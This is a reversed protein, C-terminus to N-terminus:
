QIFGFSGFAAGVTRPDGKPHFGPSIRFEIRVTAEPKPKLPYALKQWGTTNVKRTGATEGDLLLEIQFQHIADMQLPPANINIEFERALAPRTLMATASTKSWRLLNERPFWGEGFQWLPLDRNVRVYSALPTSPGRRNIHLKRFTGDWSLIALSPKKLIAQAEPSDILAVEVDTRNELCEIAGSAGWVNMAAPHGDQVFETMGPNAKLFEAITQVYGRNEEALTLASKRYDRMALYTGPIWIALFLLCAIVPKRDVATALAVTVGILPVYLYVSFMRDPLALMPLLFLCAALLGFYFRKDRVIFALLFFLPTFWAWFFVHSGYFELLQFVGFRDLKLTYADNSTRNEILAQTGFSLSVILFPILPKWRREGLWYEYIAIVAPLMVAVEKAKYALWFCLFSLVWRRDIWCVLSLLCFTGCLADFVYMPQWYAAFTAPHFLFFVLSAVAALPHFRLRNLLLWLLFANLVHIIQLGAVYPKFNLHAAAEMAHYFLHGVPRFNSRHFKPNIVGEAYTQLEVHPAWALNDLDDDQFYGKYAGRNAVFFLIILTAAALLTRTRSM